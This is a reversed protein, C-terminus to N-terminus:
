QAVRGKLGAWPLHKLALRAQVGEAVGLCQLPMQHGDVVAAHLNTGVSDWGIEHPNQEAAEGQPRLLAVLAGTVSRERQAM